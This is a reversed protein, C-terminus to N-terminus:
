SAPAEEVPHAAVTNIFSSLIKRQPNSFVHQLCELVRWSVEVWDKGPLQQHNLVYRGRSQFAQLTAIERAGFAAGHAQIHMHTEDYWVQGTIPSNIPAKDIM